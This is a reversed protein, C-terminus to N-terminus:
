LKSPVGVKGMRWSDSDQASHCWNRTYVGKEKLGMKVNEGM